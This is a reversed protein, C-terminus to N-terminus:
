AQFTFQYNAAFNWVMVGVIAIGKSLYFNLKKKETLLYILGNSVALGVLSVLIFKSYQIWILTNTSQFTWIRNLLFNTTVAFAFGLSNAVYKPIRLKEKSLYTIGFDIGVGSFGVLGFKIFKWLIDNM